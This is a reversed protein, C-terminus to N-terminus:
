HGERGTKLRKPVIPMPPHETYAITSGAPRRLVIGPREMVKALGIHFLNQRSGWAALASAQSYAAIITDYFGLHAQYVKPNPMFLVCKLPICLPFGCLLQDTGAFGNVTNRVCMALSSIM